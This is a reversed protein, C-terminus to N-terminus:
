RGAGVQLAMLQRSGGEKAAVLQGAALPLPLQLLWM